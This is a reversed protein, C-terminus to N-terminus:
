FISEKIGRAEPEPMFLSSIISEGGSYLVLLFKISVAKHQFNRANKM